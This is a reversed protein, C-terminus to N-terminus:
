IFPIFGHMIIIVILWSTPDVILSSVLKTGERYMLISKTIVMWENMEILNICIYYIQIFHYSILGYLLSFFNVNAVCSFLHLIFIYGRWHVIRIAFENVSFSCSFLLFKKIWATNFRLNSITRDTERLSIQKKGSFICCSIDPTSWKNPQLQSNEKHFIYILFFLWEYPNDM